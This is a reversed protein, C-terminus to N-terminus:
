CIIEENTTLQSSAWTKSYLDFLTTDIEKYSHTFFSFYLTIFFFIIIVKDNQPSQLFFQTFNVAAKWNFLM